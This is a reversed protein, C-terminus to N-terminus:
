GDGESLSAVGWQGSFGPCEMAPAVPNITQLLPVTLDAPVLRRQRTWAIFFRVHYRTTNGTALWTDLLGQNLDDLSRHQEALWDLLHTAQRIIQRANHIHGDSLKGIDARRRLRRLM